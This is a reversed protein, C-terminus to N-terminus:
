IVTELDLEGGQFLDVLLQMTLASDRTWTYYDIYM